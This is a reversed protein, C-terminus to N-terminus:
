KIKCDCYAASILRILICIAANFTKKGYVILCLSTQVLTSDSPYFQGEDQGVLADFGPDESKFETASVM